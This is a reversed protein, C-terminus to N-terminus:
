VPAPALAEELAALTSAIREGVAVLEDHSAKEFAEAAHPDRDALFRRATSESANMSRVPVQAALEKVQADSDVWTAIGGEIVHVGTFNSVHLEMTDERTPQPAVAPGLGALARLDAASGYFLNLDVTGGIGPVTGSSTHQWALCDTWGGYADLEPGNAVDFEIPNIGDYESHWLPGLDAGFPNGIVGVWYWRGTYILIPRGPVLRRFEAVFSRLHQIRPTTGDQEREIDIIPVIGTFGPFSRSVESVYFAAQAEGPYHDLLFHYAGPLRGTALAGAVNRHFWGTWSYRIGDTAKLWAFEYAAPVLGWAIEGQHRSADLGRIETTSM